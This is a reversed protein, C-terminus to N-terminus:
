WGGVADPLLQRSNVLLSLGARCQNQEKRLHRRVVALHQDFRLEEHHATYEDGSCRSSMISLALTPVGRLM